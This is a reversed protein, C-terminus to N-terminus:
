AFVVSQRERRMAFGVIGFGAVMMAWTAAEPVAPSSGIKYSTITYFLSDDNSIGSGGVSGSSAVYYSAGTFNLTLTQLTAFGDPSTTTAM